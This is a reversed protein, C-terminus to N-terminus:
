LTKAWTFVKTLQQGYCKMIEQNYYGVMLYKTVMLYSLPIKSNM